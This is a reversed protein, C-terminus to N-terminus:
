HVNNPKVTGKDNMRQRNYGEQYAYSSCYPCWITYIKNHNEIRYRIIMRKCGPCQIKEESKESM